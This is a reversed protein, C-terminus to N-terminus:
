DDTAAVLEVVVVAGVEVNLAITTDDDVPSLTSSTDDVDDDSPATFFNVEVVVSFGDLVVTVLPLVSLLPAPLLVLGVLLLMASGNHFLFGGSRTPCDCM